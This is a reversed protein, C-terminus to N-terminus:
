LNGGVYTQGAGLLRQMTARNVASAARSSAVAADCRRRSSREHDAHIDVPGLFSLHPHMQTFRDEISESRAM